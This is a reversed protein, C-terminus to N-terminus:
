QLKIQKYRKSLCSRLVGCALLGRLILLTDKHTQLSFCSSEYLQQMEDGHLIEQTLYKLVCDKLSPLPEPILGISIVDQSLGACLEQYANESLVRCHPFEQGSSVAKLELQNKFKENDLLLKIRKPVLRLIKQTITWRLSGGNITLPEGLTYLLQYKM